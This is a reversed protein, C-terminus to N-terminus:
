KPINYVQAFTFKGKSIHAHRVVNGAKMASMFSSDESSEKLSDVLSM